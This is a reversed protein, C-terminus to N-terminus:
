RLAVEALRVERDAVEAKRQWRRVARLRRAFADAEAEQQRERMLARVHQEAFQTYMLLRRILYHVLPSQPGTM